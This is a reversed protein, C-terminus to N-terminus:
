QPLSLENKDLIYFSINVLLITLSALMRKTGLVRLLAFLPNRLTTMNRRIRLANITKKTISALSLDTGKENIYGHKYFNLM